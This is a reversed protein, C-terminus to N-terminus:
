PNIPLTYRIRGYVDIQLRYDSYLVVQRNDPVTQAQARIIWHTASQFRQADAGDWMVSGEGRVSAFVRGLPDPSSPDVLRAPAIRWPINWLSDIVQQHLSDWAYVQVDWTIPYDNVYRWFLQFSDVEDTVFPVMALTDQLYFDKVSLQMPAEMWVKVDLYSSDYFFDTLRNPNGSPNRFVTGVVEIQDPMNQLFSILNSSASHVPVELYAPSLPRDTAPPIRYTRGLLSANLTRYQGTASNYGVISQLIVDADFGFTNEFVIGASVEDFRIWGDDFFRRIWPMDAVGAVSTTDRGMYGRAYSPLMGLLRYNLYISDKLSLHIKKGTSDFRLVTIQYFSNFTDHDKGTFDVSYGVLSYVERRRVSDRTPSPRLVWNVKMPWGSMDQVGPLSLFFYMSDPMTHIAEVELTGGAIEAYALRIPDLHYYVDLSDDVFNQSPFVATAEEVYMNKGELTLAVADNTDIVVLGGSGPSSISILEFLLHGEVEKGALDYSDVHMTGSSLLPITDEVIVTGLYRNRLEFVVDQLDIPLGNYLRLYLKGSVFKASEFIETIDIETPNTTVDSFPPIVTQSGHALLIPIGSTGMDRAIKGLTLRYEMSRTGLSLTKLSVNKSFSTDPFYWFNDIGLRYVSTEMRMWLRASSDDRWHVASLDQLRLSSKLLPFYAASELVESDRRCSILIVGIGIGWGIWQWINMRPM